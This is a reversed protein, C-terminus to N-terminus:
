RFSEQINDGAEYMGVEFEHPEREELRSIEISEEYVGYKSKGSLAHPMGFYRVFVRSDDSPDDRVVRGKLKGSGFIVYPNNLWYHKDKM